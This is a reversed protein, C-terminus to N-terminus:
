QLDSSTSSVSTLDKTLFELLDATEIRQFATDGDDGGAIEEVGDFVHWFTLNAESGM